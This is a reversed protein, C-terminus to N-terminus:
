ILSAALSFWDDTYRSSSPFCGYVPLSHSLLLPHPHSSSPPASSRNPLWFPGHWECALAAASHSTSISWLRSRNDLLPGCRTWVWGCLSSQVETLSLIEKKKKKKLLHIKKFLIVHSLLPVRWPDLMLRSGNQPSGNHALIFSLSNIHALKICHAPSISSIVVTKPVCLVLRPHSIISYFLSPRQQKM